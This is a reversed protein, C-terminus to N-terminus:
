KFFGIKEYFNQKNHTKIKSIENKITDDCQMLVIKKVFITLLFKNEIDTDYKKCNKIILTNNNLYTNNFTKNYLLDFKLIKVNKLNSMDKIKFCRLITLTNINKLCSANTISECYQMTLKNIYKLLHISHDDINIEFVSLLYVCSIKNLYKEEINTTQINLICAYSIKNFIIGVINIECCLKIEHAYTFRSIDIDYKYDSNDTIHLKYINKLLYIQKNLVINKYDHEACLFYNNRLLSVYKENSNIQINVSKLRSFMKKHITNTTRCTIQAINEFLFINKINKLNYDTVRYINITNCFQSTNHM